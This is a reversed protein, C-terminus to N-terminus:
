NAVTGGLLLAEIPSGNVSRGAVFSTSKWAVGATGATAGAVTGYEDAAAATSEATAPEPSTPSDGQVEATRCGIAVALLLLQPLLARM